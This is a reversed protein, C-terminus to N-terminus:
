GFGLFAEGSEADSSEDAIGAGVEPTLPDIENSIFKTSECSSNTKLSSVCYVFTAKLSIDFKAHNICIQEDDQTLNGDKPIKTLLKMCFNELYRKYRKSTLDMVHKQSITHAFDYCKASDYELDRVICFQLKEKAIKRVQIMWFKNLIAPSLFIPSTERMMSKRDMSHQEEYYRFIPKISNDQTLHHDVQVDIQKDDLLDFFCSKVEEEYMQQAPKKLFKRNELMVEMLKKIRNNPDTHVVLTLLLVCAYQTHQFKEANKQINKKEFPIMTFSVTRLPTATTSSLSSISNSGHNSSFSTPKSISESKSDFSKSEASSITNHCLFLASNNNTIFSPTEQSLFSACSTLAILLILNKQKMIECKSAVFAIPNNKNKDSAFRHQTVSAVPPTIANTM